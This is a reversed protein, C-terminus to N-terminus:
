AIQFLEVEIGDDVGGRCQLVQDLNDACVPYHDSRIIWHRHAIKLREAFDIREGDCIFFSVLDKAGVGGSGQIKLALLM